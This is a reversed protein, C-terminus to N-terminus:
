LLSAMKKITSKIQHETYAAYGFVIGPKCKKTFSYSSLPPTYIGGSLMLKSFDVDSSFNKLWGVTHLGADTQHLTIHNDLYQEIFNYFIEKRKEYILRMRRIHRGYHGDTIFKALAAQEFIPSNRDTLMKAATFSKILYEPVILYGLRLGPFMVKSFTGMYIVSDNNDIGQLSSLPQGKYRYESDYDDELIWCNNLSSYDLLELRRNLSMTIGLPYQHSPTTYILVPKLKTKKFNIGEEDIPMPIINMGAASFSDRAGTYGPEEFGINDKPSLLVKAVLDFGQQSGNIIIVQDNECKVGRAARAYNAIADRLPQYGAADGYGFDNKSIENASTSILKTWIHFPFENLDPMGPRFPAFRNYDLREQILYKKFHYGKAEPSNKRKASDFNTKINKTLLLNEPLEESIYTGSGPKGKIYGEAILNEFALLVTTRSINLFDALERSPPIQQGPRFRGSLIASRFENYLQKYVPLESSKHIIIGSINLVSQLKAMETGWIPIILIDWVTSKRLGIISYIEIL